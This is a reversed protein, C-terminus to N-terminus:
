SKRRTMTFIHTPLKSSTLRQDLVETINVNSMISTPISSRPNFGQNYLKNITKFYKKTQNEYDIHDWPSFKSSAERKMKKEVKM